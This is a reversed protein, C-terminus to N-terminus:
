GDSNTYYNDIIIDLLLYGWLCAITYIMIKIAWTHSAFGSYKSIDPNSNGSDKLTLIAQTHMGKLGGEFMSKDVLEEALSHLRFFVDRNRLDWLMCSLCGAMGLISLAWHEKNIFTFLLAGQSAVFIKLGTNRMQLHAILWPIIQKEVYEFKQRDYDM